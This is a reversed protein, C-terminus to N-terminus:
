GTQEAEDDSIREMEARLQQWSEWVNEYDVDAYGRAAEIARAEDRSVFRCFETDRLYLVEQQTLPRGEGREYRGLTQALPPEYVLVTDKPLCIAFL